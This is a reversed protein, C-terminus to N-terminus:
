EEDDKFTFGMSEMLAKTKATLKPTRLEYERIEREVMGKIEDEGSGCAIWEEVKYYIRNWLDNISIDSGYGSTDILNKEFIDKKNQLKIFQSLKM